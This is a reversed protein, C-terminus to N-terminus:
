TLANGTPASVELPPEFGIADLAVNVTNVGGRTAFDNAGPLTATLSAAKNIMVNVLGLEVAIVPAANESVYGTLRRLSTTEPAEVVHGVPVTVADGFAVLGPVRVKEPPDTGALLEQVMVTFTM